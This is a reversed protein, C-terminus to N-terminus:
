DSLLRDLFLKARTLLALATGRQAAVTGTAGVKEILLDLSSVTTPYWPSKRGLHELRWYMISVLQICYLLM